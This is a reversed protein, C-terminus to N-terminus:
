LLSSFELQKECIIFSGSKLYMCCNYQLLIQWDSDWNWFNLHIYTQQHSFSSKMERIWILFFTHLVSYRISVFVTKYWSAKTEHLTYYYQLTYCTYILSCRVFFCLIAVLVKKLVLKRSGWFGSKEWFFAVLTLSRSDGLDCLEFFIQSPFNKKNSKEGFQVIRLWKAFTKKEAKKPRKLGKFAIFALFALIKSLLHILASQNLSYFNKPKLRINMNTLNLYNKTTIKQFMYKWSCLTASRHHFDNNITMNEWSYMTLSFLCKTTYM